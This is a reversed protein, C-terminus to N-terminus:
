KDGRPSTFVRECSGNELVRNKNTGFKSFLILTSYARNEGSVRTRCSVRRHREVPSGVSFFQGILNM